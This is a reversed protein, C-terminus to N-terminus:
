EINKAAQHLLCETQERGFALCSSCDTLAPARICEVNIISQQFYVFLCDLPRQAGYHCVSLVMQDHFGIGTSFFGPQEVAQDSRGQFTAAECWTLEERAAYVWEVPALKFSTSM